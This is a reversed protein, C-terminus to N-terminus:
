ICRSLWLVPPLKWSVWHTSWWGEDCHVCAVRGTSLSTKWTILSQVNRSSNLFVVHFDFVGQTTKRKWFYDNRCNTVRRYQWNYTHETKSHVHISTHMHKHTHTHLLPLRSHNVESHIHTLPVPMAMDLVIVESKLPFPLNGVELGRRYPECPHCLRSTQIHISLTHTSFTWQLIKGGM